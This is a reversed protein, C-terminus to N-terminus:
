KGSRRLLSWGLWFYTLESKMQVLKGSKNRKQGLQTHKKKKKKGDWKRAKAENEKVAVM